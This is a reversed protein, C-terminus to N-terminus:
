KLSFFDLGKDNLVAVAQGTEDVIRHLGLWEREHARWYEARVKVLTALLDGRFHQAQIPPNADLVRIARPVVRELDAGQSISLYLDAPTLEEVTKALAQDCERALSSKV